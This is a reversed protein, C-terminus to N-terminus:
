DLSPRLTPHLLLFKHLEQPVQQKEGSRSRISIPVNGTQEFVLWVAKAPWVACPLHEKTSSTVLIWRPHRSHHFSIWSSNLKTTRFEHFLHTKASFTIIAPVDWVVTQIKEEFTHTGGGRCRNSIDPTWDWNREITIKCAFYVFMLLPDGGRWKWIIRFNM